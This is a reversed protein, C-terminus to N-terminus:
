KWPAPSSPILAVAPPALGTAQTWAQALRTLQAAMCDTDYQHPMNFMYVVASRFDGYMGDYAFNGPKLAPDGRGKTYKMLDTFASIFSTTVQTIADCNTKKLYAVEGASPGSLNVGLFDLVALPLLAALALSGIVPLVGAAWTPLLSAGLGVGGFAANATVGLGVKLIQAGLTIEWLVQEATAQGSGGSTPASAPLQSTLGSFNLSPDGPLSGLDYSFGPIQAIFTDADATASDVALLMSDFAAFDATPDFAAAATNESALDASGSVLSSGLARLGAQGPSLAAGAAATKQQMDALAADFGAYHAAALSALDSAHRPDPPATPPIPKWNPRPFM